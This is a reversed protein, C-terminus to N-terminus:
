TGAKGFAVFGLGSASGFDRNWKAFFGSGSM